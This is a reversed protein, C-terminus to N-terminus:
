EQDREDYARTFATDFRRYNLGTSGGVSVYQKAAAAFTQFVTAARDAQQGSPLALAEACQGAIGAFARDSLRRVVAQMVRLAAAPDARTLADLAALNIQVRTQEDTLGGVRTAPPAAVTRDLIQFTPLPAGLVGGALVPVDFGLYGVALLRDFSEALGVGSSSAAVFRVAGGAKTKDVIDAIPSKASESLVNLLNTYGPNVNGQADLVSPVTPPSFGGRGQGGASGTRNVSVIVGGALYVRSVVRLFIPKPDARRVTEDLIPWVDDEQAWARLAAYLQQEDAAYTRADSITISGNVRDAQLFNLAVPIGQVPVALSLGLSSQAEFTYTPFAARPATVNAFVNTVAGEGTLAEPTARSPPTHPTGGFEKGWDWYGDFYVRGYDLNKLRTRRDDLALFGRRQYLKAQSAVPTQVLFVDGPSLDETLPYVPVVQSARITECWGKAVSELQKRANRSACGVPLLLAVLLLNIWRFAAGPAPPNRGPSSPNPPLPWAAALGDLDDIKM